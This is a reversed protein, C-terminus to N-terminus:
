KLEEDLQQFEPTEDLRRNFFCLFQKFIEYMTIMTELAIEVKNFYYKIKKDEIVCRLISNNRTVVITKNQYANASAKASAEASTDISANASAKASAEASTDFHEYPTIIPMEITTIQYPTTPKDLYDLLLKYQLQNKMENIMIHDTKTDFDITWITSKSVFIVNSAPMACVHLIPEDFTIMFLRKTYCYYCFFLTKSQEFVFLENLNFVDVAEIPMNIEESIEDPIYGMADALPLKNLESINFKTVQSIKM